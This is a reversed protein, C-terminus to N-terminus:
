ISVGPYMVKIHEVTSNLNVSMKKYSDVKKEFIRVKYSLEKQLTSPCLTLFVVFLRMCYRCKCGNLPSKTQMCVHM